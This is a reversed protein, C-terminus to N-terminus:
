WSFLLWHRGPACCALCCSSRDIDGGAPPSRLWVFRDARCRPHLRKWCFGNPMTTATLRPLRSSRRAPLFQGDGGAGLFSKHSRPIQGREPLSAMLYAGVEFALLYSQRLVRGCNGVIRNTGAQSQTCCRSCGVLLWSLRYCCIGAYHMSLQRCCVSQGSINRYVLHCIALALAFGPSQAPAQPIDSKVLPVSAILLGVMLLYKVAVFKEFPQIFLLGFWLGWPRM